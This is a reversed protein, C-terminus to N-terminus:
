KKAAELKLALFALMEQYAATRAAPNSGVTVGEGPHIGNPVDHRVRLRMDPADFDHYSDPYLKLRIPMTPSKDHELAICPAAPTWDDREGMLITLSGYVGSKDNGELKRM